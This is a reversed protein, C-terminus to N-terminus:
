TSVLVILAGLIIVLIGGMRTKLHYEEHRIFRAVWVAILGIAM